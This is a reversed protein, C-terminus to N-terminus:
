RTTTFTNPKRGGRGSGRGEGTSLLASGEFPKEGGGFGLAAVLSGDPHRVKWSYAAIAGLAVFFLIPGAVAGALESAALGSSATNGGGGGGGGGGGCAADYVSCNAGSYCKYCACLGTACDCAGNNSCEILSRCTLPVHTSTTSFPSTHTVRACLVRACRM